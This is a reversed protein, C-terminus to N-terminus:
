MKHTWGSPSLSMHHSCTRGPTGIWRKTDWFKWVKSNFHVKIEHDFVNRDSFNYLIFNSIRLLKSFTQIFVSGIFSSGDNITRRFPFFTSNISWRTDLVEFVPDPLEWQEDIPRFVGSLFEFSPSSSVKLTLFANCTVYGIVTCKVTFNLMIKLCSRIHKYGITAYFLRWSFNSLSSFSKRFRTFSSFDILIADSTSNLDVNSSIWFLSSKSSQLLSKSRTLSWRNFVNM